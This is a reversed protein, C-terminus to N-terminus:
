ILKWILGFIGLKAAGFGVVAGIATPTHTKAFAIVKAKVTVVETAVAQVVPDAM